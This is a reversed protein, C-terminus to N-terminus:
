KKLYDRLHEIAENADKIARKLDKDEADGEHVASLVERAKEKTDRAKDVLTDLEKRAKDNM